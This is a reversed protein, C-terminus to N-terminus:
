RALLLFLIIGNGYDDIMTCAMASIIVNTLDSHIVAVTLKVSLAVFNM